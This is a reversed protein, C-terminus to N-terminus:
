CVRARGRLSVLGSLAPGTNRSLAHRVVSFVRARSWALNLHHAGVAVGVVVCGTVLFSSVILLRMTAVFRRGVAAAACVLAGVGVAIPLLLGVRIGGLVAAAAVAGSPSLRRSGYGASV